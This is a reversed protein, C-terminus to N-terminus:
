MHSAILDEEKELVNDAKEALDMIQDQQEEEDEDEEDV